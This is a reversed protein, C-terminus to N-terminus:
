AGWSKNTMALIIDALSFEAAKLVAEINAFAQETQAVIGEMLEGNSPDIGIQGSLFIMNGKKVAQSYPGLAAPANSTAIIEKTVTFM